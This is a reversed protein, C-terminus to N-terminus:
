YSGQVFTGFDRLMSARAMIPSLRQPLYLPDAERRIPSLILIHFIAAEEGCPAFTMALEVNRGIDRRTQSLRPDAPHLHHILVGIALGITEEAIATRTM